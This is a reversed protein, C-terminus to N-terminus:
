YLGCTFQLYRSYAVGKGLMIRASLILGWIGLYLAWDNTLLGWTANVIAIQTRQSSQMASVRHTVEFGPSSSVCWM